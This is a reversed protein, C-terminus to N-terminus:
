LKAHQDLTPFDYEVGIRRTRIGRTRLAETIGFFFNDRRWDTYVINEGYSRRWPMGADINATVSVSDEPTVVLAYSRGFATFLFDSYYKIGHYSALVVADCDQEAMIRRLRGLRREFEAAPFTLATKQGNHMTKLREAAMAEAASAPSAQPPDAPNPAGATSPTTATHPATFSM